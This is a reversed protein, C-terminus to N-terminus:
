CRGRLWGLMVDSEQCKASTNLPRSINRPGIVGVGIIVPEVLLERSFEIFITIVIEMFYMKIVTGVDRNGDFNVISNQNKEQKESLRRSGLRARTKRM